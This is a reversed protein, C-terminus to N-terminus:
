PADAGRQHERLVRRETERWERGLWRRVRAERWETRLGRLGARVEAGLSEPPGRRRAPTWNRTDGPSGGPTLAPCGM